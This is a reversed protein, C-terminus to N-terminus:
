ELFPVRISLDECGYGYADCTEIILYLEQPLDNVDLILGIDTTSENDEFDECILLPDSQYECVLFQNDHCSDRDDCFADYLILADSIRNRDNIYVSVLYEDDAVIDWYLVFLGNEQGEQQVETPSLAIESEPALSSDSGNTDIIELENLEPDDEKSLGGCASTFIVFLSIISISLFRHITSSM